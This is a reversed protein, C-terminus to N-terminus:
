LHGARKLSVHDNDGLIISDVLPICMMEGIKAIRKSADIDQDSPTPNGSPHNHGVLISACNILMAFQFIHRLDLPTSSLGGISTTSWGVTSGKASLGITIFHESPCKDLRCVERLFDTADDPNMLKYDYSDITSEEKVLELKYKRYEKM